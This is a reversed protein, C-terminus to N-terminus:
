ILKAMTMITLVDFIVLCIAMIKFKDLHYGVALAVVNIFALAISITIESDEM